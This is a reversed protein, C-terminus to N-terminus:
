DTYANTRSDTYANGIRATGTTLNVHVHEEYCKPCLEPNDACCQNHVVAPADTLSSWPKETKRQYGGCWDTSHVPAWGGTMPPYRRCIGYLAFGSGEAPPKSVEYRFEYFRCDNCTM